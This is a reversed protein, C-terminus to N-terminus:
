RAETFETRTAKMRYLSVPVGDRREEKVDLVGRVSVIVHQAYEAVAAGEMTVEVWENLRPTTAFCCGFQNRMLLFKKAGGAEFTLPMMYGDIVVTRGSLQRIKEPIEYSTQSDSAYSACEFSALDDFSAALPEDSPAPKAAVPPEDTRAQAAAAPPAGAPAPPAVDGPRATDLDGIAAPEPPPAARRFPTGKVDALEADPLATDGCAGAALAAACLVAASRARM